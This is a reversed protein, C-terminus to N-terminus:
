SDRPSATRLTGHSGLHWASLSRFPSYTSPGCQRFVGSSTNFHFRREQPGTAHSTGLTTSQDDTIGQSRCTYTDKNTTGLNVIWSHVDRGLQYFHHPLQNAKAKLSARGFLIQVSLRFLGPRCAYYLQSLKRIDFTNLRSQCTASWMPSNLFYQLCSISQYQAALALINNSRTWFRGDHPDNHSEMFLKVISVQDYSIALYLPSTSVDIHNLIIPQESFTVSNHTQLFIDAGSRLLITAMTQSVQEPLCVIYHLATEGGTGQANVDRGTEAYRTVDDVNGRLVSRHIEPTYPNRTSPISRTQQVATAVPGPVPKDLASLVEPRTYGNLIRETISGQALATDPNCVRSGNLGRSCWLSKPSHGPGSSSWM